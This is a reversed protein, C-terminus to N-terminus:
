PRILIEDLVRVAGDEAVRLVFVEGSAVSRGTLATINVQHTVLMATTGPALDALFARVADTQAERTSRDGFFSNLAPLEEVPGLGLLRATDLCRCWQSSVVRDVAVGAERIAAGVAAAQARGRDDLNRQTSCDGVEFEAPDGFGPAIAHRMIAVTGPEGLATWGPAADAAATGPAAIALLLAIIAAPRLRRM